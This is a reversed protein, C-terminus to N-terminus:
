AITRYIHRFCYPFISSPTKRPTRTCHNYLIWNLLMSHLTSNRSPLGGLYSSRLLPISILRTKPIPAQLIIALFPSTQSFYGELIIQVSLSVAILGKGPYSQRLSLVGTRTHRHVTIHTFWHCRQIIQPGSNYSHILRLLDLWGIWFVEWLDRVFGRCTVICVDRDLASTFFPPAICGIGWVDHRLASKILCLSLNVKIYM